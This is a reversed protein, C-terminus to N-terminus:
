SLLAYFRRQFRGELRLTQGLSRVQGQVVVRGLELAQGAGLHWEHEGGHAGVHVWGGGWPQSSHMSLEGQMAERLTTRLVM